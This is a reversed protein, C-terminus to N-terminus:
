ETEGMGEGIGDTNGDSSSRASNKPVRGRVKRRSLGAHKEALKWQSSFDNRCHVEESKYLFIALIGGSEKDRLEGLIKERIKAM